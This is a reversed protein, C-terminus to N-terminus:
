MTMAKGGPSNALGHVGCSRQSPFPCPPPCFARPRWRCSVPLRRCPQLQSLSPSAQVPGGLKLFEGPPGSLKPLFPHSMPRGPQSTAARGQPQYCAGTSCGSWVRTRALCLLFCPGHVGGPNPALTLPLVASTGLFLTLFTGALGQCRGM